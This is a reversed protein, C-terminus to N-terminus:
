PSPVVVQQKAQQTPIHSPAAGEGNLAATELVMKDPCPATPSTSAQELRILELWRCWLTIWGIRDTHDTDMSGALRATAEMTRPLTPPKGSGRPCQGRDAQAQAVLVKCRSKVIWKSLGHIWPQPRIRNFVQQLAWVDDETFRRLFDGATRPDPLMDTGLM